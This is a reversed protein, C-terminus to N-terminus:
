ETEMKPSYLLHIIFRAEVENESMRHITMRDIRTIRDMRELHQVFGYVSVFSGSITLDIPLITYEGEVREGSTTVSNVVLGLEFAADSASELWDDAQHEVPIRDTTQNTSHQLSKSLAKLERYQFNIEDIHNLNSTRIKIEDAVGRVAVNMPRYAIAWASVPVAVLLGVLALHRIPIKM